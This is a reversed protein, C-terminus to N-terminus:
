QRQEDRESSQNYNFTSFLAVEFNPPSSGNQVRTGELDAATMQIDKEGFGTLLSQVVASRDTGHAAVTSQIGQIMKEKERSACIQQSKIAKVQGQPPVAVRSFRNGRM